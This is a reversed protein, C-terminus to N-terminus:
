TKKKKKSSSQAETGKRKEKPATLELARCSYLAKEVQVATWTNEDSSLDVAKGRVMGALKRYAGVTFGDKGKGLVADMVEYSMFPCGDDLAALLGSATAPGVGKLEMLCELSEIIAGLGDDESEEKGDEDESGKGSGNGVERHAEEDSGGGVAEKQTGGQKLIEFGKTTVDVVVAEDQSQAYSLLRPRFKERKLKWQVLKVLEDRTMHAPERSRVAPTLETFFWTDLDNLGSRREDLLAVRETYADLHNGWEEKSSSKWLAHGMFSIVLGKVQAFDGVFKDKNKTCQRGKHM